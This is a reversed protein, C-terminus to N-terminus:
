HCAFFENRMIKIRQKNKLDKQLIYAAMKKKNTKNILFM